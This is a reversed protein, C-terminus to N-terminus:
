HWLEGDNLRKCTTLHRTWPSRVSRGQEMPQGCCATTGRPGYGALSCNYVLDVWSLGGGNKVKTSLPSRVENSARSGFKFCITVTMLTKSLKKSRVRLAVSGWAEM